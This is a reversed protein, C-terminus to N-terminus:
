MTDDSLATATRAAGPPWSHPVCRRRSWRCCSRSDSVTHCRKAIAARSFGRALGGHVGPPQSRGPRRAVAAPGAPLRGAGVHCAGGATAAALAMPGRGVRRLSLAAAAPRPRGTVARGGARRATGVRGGPARGRRRLTAPEAGLAVRLAFERRRPSSMATVGYTGALLLLLALAGFGASLVTMARAPFLSAARLDQYAMANVVRVRADLRRLEAALQRPLALGDAATRVHFTLGDAYPWRAM